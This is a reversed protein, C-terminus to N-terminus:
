WREHMRLVKVPDHRTGSSSLSPGPRVLSVGVDGPTCLRDDNAMKPFSFDAPAQDHVESATSADESSIQRVPPILDKTDAKTQSTQPDRPANRWCSAENPLSGLLHRQREHM